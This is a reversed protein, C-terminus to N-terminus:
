HMKVFFDVFIGLYKVFLLILLITDRCVVLSVVHCASPDVTPTMEDEPHSGRMTSQVRMVCSGDSRRM